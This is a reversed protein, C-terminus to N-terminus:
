VTPYMLCPRAEHCRSALAQEFMGQRPSANTRQGTVSKQQHVEVQDQRPSAQSILICYSIMPHCCPLSAHCQMRKLWAQSQM